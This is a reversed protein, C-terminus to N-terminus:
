LRFRMTLRRTGRQVGLNLFRGGEALLAEATASDPVAVDNIDRLIDGRRLGARAGIRGPDEVIAGEATLPLGHEAIVAPNVTSLVM